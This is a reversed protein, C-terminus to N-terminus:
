LSKEGQFIKELLQQSQEGVSSGNEEDESSFPDDSSEEGETKSKQKSLHRELNAQFLKPFFTARVRTSCKQM